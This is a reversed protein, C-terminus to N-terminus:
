KLPFFRMLNLVKKNVCLLAFELQVLSHVFITM